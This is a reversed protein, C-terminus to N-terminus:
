FRGSLTLGAGGRGAYVGPRVYGIGEWASFRSRQIVGGGVLMVGGALLTGTLGTLLRDGIDSSNVRRNHDIAFGMSVAGVASLVTGAVLLGNGSAPADLGNDAVWRTYKQNAKMGSFMAGIGIAAVPLATLGVPISQKSTLGSENRGVTAVVVMLSALGLGAAGAVLLGTGVPPRKPIVRPTISTCALPTPEVILAPAPPEPAPAPLVPGEVIRLAEGSAPEAPLM